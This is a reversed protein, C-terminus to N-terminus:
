GTLHKRVVCYRSRRQYGTYQLELCRKDGIDELWQIVSDSSIITQSLSKMLSLNHGLGGRKIRVAIVWRVPYRALLPSNWRVDTAKTRNDWGVSRKIALAHNNFASSGYEFFAFIVIQAMLKHFPAMQRSLHHIATNANDIRRQSSLKVQTIMLDSIVVRHTSRGRKLVEGRGFM